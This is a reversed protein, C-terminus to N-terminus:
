ICWKPVLGHELSGICICACYRAGSHDGKDREEGGGLSKREESSENVGSRGKRGSPGVHLGGLLVKAASDTLPAERANIM